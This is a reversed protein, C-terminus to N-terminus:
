SSSRSVSPRLSVSCRTTSASQQSEKEATKLKVQDVPPIRVPALGASYFLMVKTSKTIETGAIPDSSIM